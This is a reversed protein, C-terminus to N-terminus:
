RRTGAKTPKRREAIWSKRGGSRDLMHIEDLPIRGFTDGHEFRMETGFRRALRKMADNASHTTIEISDLGRSWAAEVIMAFLASGVGKGRWGALVSFALEASDPGVPHLEAVGIVKHDNEAAIVLTGPSICRRAYDAIWERSPAGNFRDRLGAADLAMVHDVLLSIDDKGLIRLRVGEPFPFEPDPALEIHM